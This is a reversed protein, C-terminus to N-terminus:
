VEERDAKQKLQRHRELSAEPWVQRASYYEPVAAV